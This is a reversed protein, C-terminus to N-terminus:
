NNLEVEFFRLDALVTAPDTYNLLTGKIIGTLEEKSTNFSAKFLSLKYSNIKFFALRATQTTHDDLFHFEEAIHAQDNHYPKNMVVSIPKVFNSESKFRSFM